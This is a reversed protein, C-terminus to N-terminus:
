RAPPAPRRRPRSFSGPERWRPPLLWPARARVVGAAGSRWELLAGRLEDKLWFPKVPHWLMDPRSGVRHFTPKFVMTGPSLYSNARNASYFRGRNRPATFEGESGIDAVTLGRMTAITGLTCECHGGWGARYAEDVAQVLRRSARFIPNFSRLAQGDDPSEGPPAVLTGWLLWDPMDRRRFVVPALLDSDDDEFAAFFRRWPGSFAVDYEITWTREYEPHALCFHLSILDTHGGHWLNWGAGGGTKAPYPMARLEPTRVVHHRVGRVREPVPAGPPLHMLVVLDHHAPAGAGLRRFAAAAWRDFFHTQFLVATKKL